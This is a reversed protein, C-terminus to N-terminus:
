CAPPSTAPSASATNPRRAAPRSVPRPPNPPPAPIWLLDLPQGSVILTIRALGSTPDGKANQPFGLTTRHADAPPQWNRPELWLKQTPYDLTWIHGPLYGAGLLGDEGDVEGAFGKRVIAVAGCPTHSSLPLGKDSQFTPSRITQIQQDDLACPTVDLGLREASRSDLAYLGSGGAGGTDVVLRMKQGNALEPTAYFHGAEYITPLLARSQAAAHVSFVTAVAGLLVIIRFM